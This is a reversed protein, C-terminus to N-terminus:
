CLGELGIFGGILQSTLTLLIGFHEASHTRHETRGVIIQTTCSCQCSGAPEPLRNESCIEIWEIRQRCWKPRLDNRNRIVNKLLCIIM